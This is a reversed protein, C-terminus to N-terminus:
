RTTEQQCTLTISGPISALAGTCTLVAPQPPQPPIPPQRDWRCHDPPPGLLGEVVGTVSVEPAGSAIRAARIRSDMPWPWLPSNTTVGGESRYCLAPLADYVSQGGMAEALTRGERFGPMTWGSGEQNVSPTDSVGVCRECVNDAEPTLSGSSSRFLFPKVQTHDSDVLAVVERFTM